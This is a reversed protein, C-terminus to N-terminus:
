NIISDLYIPSYKTTTLTQPKRGNKTREDGNWM